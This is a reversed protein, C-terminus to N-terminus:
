KRCAAFADLPPQYAPTAVDILGLVSHFLNDHTLPAQLSGSVCGRDIGRRRTMAESMWAVFPVRKQAEPALAYPLGHLFIGLEGLSEGHDSMYLLATASDNSRGKLWAITAALFHDTAVITNDYANILEGRDCQGLTPNTCEPLFRK